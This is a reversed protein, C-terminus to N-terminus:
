QDVVKNRRITVAVRSLESSAMLRAAETAALNIEFRVRNDVAVFQIMGGRESFHPIDSVTLVPRGDLTRLIGALRAEEEVGVFLMQCDESADLTVLRKAVTRRGSITEDALTADLVPGFPDRGLLCVTFPRDGAMAGAPWRVFQGFHFLYTAKVELDLAKRQASLSGPVLAVLTALAVLPARVRSSHALPRV